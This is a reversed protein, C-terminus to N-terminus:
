ALQLHTLAGAGLFPLGSKVARGQAVLALSCDVKKEAAYEVAEKLIKNELMKKGLVRQLKAIEARAAVLESAPVVAEGSSVATLAGQRELKRWLFLLSVAVGGQRAVLSVSMGPVYTRRVLTQKESLSELPIQTDPPICLRIEIHLPLRCVMNPSEHPWSVNILRGPTREIVSMVGDHVRPAPLPVVLATPSYPQLATMSFVM